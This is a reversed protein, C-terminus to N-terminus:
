HLNVGVDRWYHARRVSHGASVLLEVILLDLAHDLIFGQFLSGGRRSPEAWQHEDHCPGALRLLGPAADVDARQILM